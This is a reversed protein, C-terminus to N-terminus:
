NKKHQGLRKHDLIKVIAQEFQKQIMLSARLSKGRELDELDKHFPQLYSVHFTPHLKLKKPLNLRYAVAGVKRMVEFPGDYRPVLRCHQNKRVIKKKKL